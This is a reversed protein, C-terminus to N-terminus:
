GGSSLRGWQNGGLERGQEPLWICVHNKYFIFTDPFVLFIICSAEWSLLQDVRLVAAIQVHGRGSGTSERSRLRLLRGYVGIERLIFVFSIERCRRCARHEHEKWGEGWQAGEQQLSQLLKPGEGGGWQNSWGTHRLEMIASGKSVKRVQTLNNSYINM